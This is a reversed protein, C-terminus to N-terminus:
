IIKSAITALESREGKVLTVHGAIKANKFKEAVVTLGNSLTDIYPTDIQDVDGLLVIKSDEGVRTIVTKIEHISANQAEDLILFTRNFTRGRMYALPAIELIGDAIM